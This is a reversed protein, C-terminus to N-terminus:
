RACCRPRAAAPRGFVALIENRLVPLNIGRLVEENGYFASFDCVELKTNGNAREM